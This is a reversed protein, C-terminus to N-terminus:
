ATDCLRLIEFIPADAPRTSACTRLCPLMNHSGEGTSTTALLFCCNSQFLNASRGGTTDIKREELAPDKM